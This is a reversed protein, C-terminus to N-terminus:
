KNKLSLSLSLALPPPDSLSPSVSDSAPVWSLATLVSGLVPSSSVFGSITIQVSTPCKVLQAVWAGGNEETKYLLKEVKSHEVRREEKKVASM